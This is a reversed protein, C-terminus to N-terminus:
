PALCRVELATKRKTVILNQSGPNSPTRATAGGFVIFDLLYVWDLNIAGQVMATAPFIRYGIILGTSNQYNSDVYEAFVRDVESVEMIPTSAVQEDPVSENELVDLDESEYFCTVGLPANLILVSEASYALQSLVM